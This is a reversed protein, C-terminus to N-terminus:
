INYALKFLHTKLNSKFCELSIAPDRLRPPLSNWVYPGSSRFSAPGVRTTRYAPCLLDGHQAFRLQLRNAITNVPILMETLYAPGSQHLCRYVILAIKYVVRFRFPLWHLQDRLIPTIHDFHHTGSILRAASNIISQIKQTTGGSTGYM